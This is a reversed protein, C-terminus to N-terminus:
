SKKLRKLGMLAYGLGLLLLSYLAVYLFFRPKTPDLFRYQYKLYSDHVFGAVIITMLLYCLPYGLWALPQWRKFNTRLRDVFLWDTLVLAPVLLHALLSQWMTLYNTGGFLEYISSMLLAWVVIGGYLGASGPRPNGRLHGIVLWVFYGAIMANVQITFTRLSLAGYYFNYVSWAASVAILGRWIIIPNNGM